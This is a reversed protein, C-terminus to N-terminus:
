FSRKSAQRTPPATIAIRLALVASTLVRAQHVAESKGNSATGVLECNAFSNSDSSGFGGAKPGSLQSGFDVVFIRFPKQDFEGSFM